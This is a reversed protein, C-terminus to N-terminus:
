FLLEFFHISLVINSVLSLIASLKPNEERLFFLLDGFLDGLSRRESIRGSINKISLVHMLFSVLISASGSCGIVQLSGFAGRLPELKLNLVALARM